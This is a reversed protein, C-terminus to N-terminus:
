NIDEASILPLLLQLQGINSYSGEHGFSVQSNAAGIIGCFCDSASILQRWILHLGEDM